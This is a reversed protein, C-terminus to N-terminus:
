HSSLLNKRLMQNIHSDGSPQLMALVVILSFSGYMTNSCLLFAIAYINMVNCKKYLHFFEM